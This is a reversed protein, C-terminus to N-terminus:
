FAESYTDLRGEAKTPRLVILTKPGSESLIEIADDTGEDTQKIWVHSPTTITHMMHTEPADGVSVEITDEGDELSASIGILPQQSIQVQAGIDAGVLGVTIPQDEHRRSFDNFFAVWQDRPIERTEM